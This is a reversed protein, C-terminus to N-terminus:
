KEHVSMNGRDTTTRIASRMKRITKIAEDRLWQPEIIEFNGGLAPGVVLGRGARWM